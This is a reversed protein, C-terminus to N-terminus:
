HTSFSQTAITVAMAERFQKEKATLRKPAAIAGPAPPPPLRVPGTPGEIGLVHRYAAVVGELHLRKDPDMARQQIIVRIGKAMLGTEEAGKLIVRIRANIEARHDMLAEVAEIVQLLYSGEADEPWIEPGRTLLELLRVESLPRHVGDDGEVLEQEASAYAGTGLAAEYTDLIADRERLIAPDMDSRTIAERLMRADFGQAKAEAFVGKIDDNIGKREEFLRKLRDVLLRLVETASGIM